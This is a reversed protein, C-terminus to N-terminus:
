VITGSTDLFLAFCLGLLLFTFGLASGLSFAWSVNNIEMELTQTRLTPSNKRLPMHRNKRLSFKAM